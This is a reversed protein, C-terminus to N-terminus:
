PQRRARDWEDALLQIRGSLERFKRNVTHLFIASMWCITGIIWCMVALLASGIRHLNGTAMFDSLAWLAPVAGLIGMLLACCSFFSFPRYDRWLAVITMLISLGDRVYRIKSESGEPRVGLDVPVEVLQFDQELARITMETETAFGGEFLPMGRVLRRSFARYGSLLDEIQVSFLRNIFLRFMLNGFRNKWRFASRSVRSLRSGIVMDARGALIPEILAWAQNEPYTGDGDVMIYIDAEVQRFMSQIVYGKGQRGEHCIVAGAKRAYEVTRDRSNNDYVYVTAEPLAQRFRRVVDGITLEENYCPILIAIELDGIQDVATM